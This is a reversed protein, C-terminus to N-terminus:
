SVPNLIWLSSCGASSKVSHYLLHLFCCITDQSQRDHSHTFCTFTGAQSTTSQLDRTQWALGWKIATKPAIRCVCKEVGGLGSQDVSWWRRRCVCGAESGRIWREFPLVQSWPQGESPETSRCSAYRSQGYEGLGGLGGQDISLGGGAIAFLGGSWLLLLLLLLVPCSLRQQRHFSCLSDSLGLGALAQDLDVTARELENLGSDEAGLYSKGSRM